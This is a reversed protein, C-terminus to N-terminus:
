LTSTVPVTMTDGSRPHICPRELPEGHRASLLVCPAPQRLASRAPCNFNLCPPTRPPSLVVASHVQLLLPALSPSPARVPANFIFRACLNDLLEQPPMTNRGANTSPGPASSGPAYADFPLDAPPPPLPPPPRAVGGAAAAAAERKAAVRSATRLAARRAQRSKLAVPDARLRAMYGQEDESSSSGDSVDDAM